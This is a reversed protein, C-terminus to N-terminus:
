QLYFGILGEPADILMSKKKFDIKKIFDQNLPILIEKKDQFIQMINQQPLKLIDSIKGIKGHTVDSVHFGILDNMNFEDAGTKNKDSEPIYIKCGLIKQSDDPNNIDEFKIAVTNNNQINYELVFFPVREHKIEVFFFELKEYKEPDDNEFIVIVQGKYGFTKSIRGLYFFTDKDM